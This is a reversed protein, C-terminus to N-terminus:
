YVPHTEPSNKFRRKTRMIMRVLAEVLDDLSNASPLNLRIPPGQETLANLKLM